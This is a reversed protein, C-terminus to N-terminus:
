KFKESDQFKRRHREMGRIFVYLVTHSISSPTRIKERPTKKKIGHLRDTEIFVLEAEYKSIRFDKRTTFFGLKM